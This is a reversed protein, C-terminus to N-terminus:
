KTAEVILENMGAQKWLPRAIPEPRPVFPSLALPPVATYPLSRSRAAPLRLSPQRNPPCLADSPSGRNKQGIRKRKFQGLAMHTHM